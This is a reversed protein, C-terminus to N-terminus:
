FPSLQPRLGRDRCWGLVQPQALVALFEPRGNTAHELLMRAVRQRRYVEKFYLFGIAPKSDTQRHLVFGAVETPFGTPNAITLEWPTQIMRAVIGNSIEPGLDGPLDRYYPPPWLSRTTSRYFLAHDQEIGPRLEFDSVSPFIAARRRVFFKVPRLPRPYATFIFLFDVGTSFCKRSLGWFGIAQPAL